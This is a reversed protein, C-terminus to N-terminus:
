LTSSFEQWLWDSVCCLFCTWPLVPRAPAPARNKLHSFHWGTRIFTIGEAAPLSAAAEQKKETKTKKKAKLLTKCGSSMAPFVKQQFNSAHVLDGLQLYARMPAHMETAVVANCGGHSSWKNKSLNICSIIEGIPFCKANFWWSEDEPSTKKRVFICMWIEVLIACFMLGQHKSQDSCDRKWQCVIQINRSGLPISELPSQRVCEHKLTVRQQTFTMRIGWKIIHNADCEGHSYWGVVKTISIITKHQNEAPEPVGTFDFWILQTSAPPSLQWFRTTCEAPTYKAM